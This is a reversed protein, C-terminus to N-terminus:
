VINWIAQVESGVVDSGSGIRWKGVGLLRRRDRRPLSRCSESGASGREGFWRSRLGAVKSDVIREKVVSEVMVKTREVDAVQVAKSDLEMVYQSGLLVLLSWNDEPASSIRLTLENM